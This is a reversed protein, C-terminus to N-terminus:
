YCTTQYAITLTQGPSPAYLSQFNVSNAVPDWNWVTAGQANTAPLNQNDITVVIPRNTLDPQSTLFYNTRLGFATQGMKELTWTPPCLEMMIGNTQQVMTAYTGDDPGDGDSCGASYPFYFTMTSWTFLTKRNFRKINLFANLYYSAPLLSEDGSDSVCVVALTADDRLFGANDANSLPATLAEIAPHLCTPAGSGLIGVNVKAKFTNEVDPTSPTLIKEPNGMGSVFRGHSGTPTDDATTVALHFDVQASNAYKFFSSSNAAIAAQYSGMSCSNDVVLLVDAKPQADLVYVDSQIGQPDGMGTLPVVYTVQTGDQTATIAVVGKDTGIDIPKYKVQFSQPASNGNLVLGGQPISPSQVLLFEPCSASGPCNPGGAPEGAADSLAFSNIIV